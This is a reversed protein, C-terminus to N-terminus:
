LLMYKIGKGFHLVLLNPKKKEPLDCCHQFQAQSTHRLGVRRLIRINSYKSNSQATSNHSFELDHFLLIYLQFPDKFTM